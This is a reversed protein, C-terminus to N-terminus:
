RQPGKRCGKGQVQSDTATCCGAMEAPILRRPEPLYPRLRRNREPPWPRHRPHLGAGSGPRSPTTRCASLSPKRRTRHRDRPFQALPVTKATLVSPEPKVFRCMKLPLSPSVGHLPKTTNLLVNYPVVTLPPLEFPVTNATLVSPESNLFRCM